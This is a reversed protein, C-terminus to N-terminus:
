VNTDDREQQRSEVAAEGEGEGEVREKQKVRVDHNGLGLSTFLSLASLAVALYFTRDFSVAYSRVVAPLDEASVVKRFGTAGAAIVTAPDVHPARSRIQSALSDDFITNAASILVASGLGQIFTLMAM